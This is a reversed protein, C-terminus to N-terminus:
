SGVCYRHPIYPPFTRICYIGRTAAMHRAFIWLVNLFVCVCWKCVRYTHYICIYIYIYIYIETRISYIGRTAAMHRAFIWLVNFFVCVCWACIRYSHYINKKKRPIYATYVGLQQSVIVFSTFTKLYLHYALYLGYLAVRQLVSQLMSCCVRCCVCCPSTSPIPRVSGCEAVSQLVSCCEAVCQLVSCCVAVCQL